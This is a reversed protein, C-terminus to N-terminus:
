LDGGGMYVKSHCRCECTKPSPCAHHFQSNKCIASIMEMNEMINKELFEVM